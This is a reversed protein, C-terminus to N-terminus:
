RRRLLDHAAAARVIRAPVRGFIVLAGTSVVQPQNAILAVGEVRTGNHSGVDTVSLVGDTERVHAHLKSVSAHRVVVDSNRARGLLPAVILRKADPPLGAVETRFGLDDDEEEEYSVFFYPHTAAFDKANLRDAEDQWFLEDVDSVRIRGVDLM